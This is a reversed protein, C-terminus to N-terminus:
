APAGCIRGFRATRAFPSYFRCKSVSFGIGSAYVPSVRPRGTACASQLSPAGFVGGSRPQNHNSLLRSDLLLSPNPPRGTSHRKEKIGMRRHGFVGGGGGLEDLVVLPGVPVVCGEPEHSHLAIPWNSRSHFCSRPELIIGSSHLSDM